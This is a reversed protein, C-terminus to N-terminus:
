WGAEGVVLVRGVREGEVRLKDDWCESSPVGGPGLLGWLLLAAHEPVIAGVDLCLGCDDDGGNCVEDGVAAPCCCTAPDRSDAAGDDTVEDWGLSGVRCCM